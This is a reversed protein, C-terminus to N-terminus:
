TTVTQLCHIGNARWMDVVAQDDEIAIFPHYGLDIMQILMDHKVVTAKRHDHDGRMFLEDAPIDNEDLKDMTVDRYAEPRGTCLVVHHDKALARVLMAVPTVVPDHGCLDHFAAYDKVFPEISGAGYQESVHHLRAVPNFLTGDIDVIATM